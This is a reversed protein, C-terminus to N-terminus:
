SESSLHVVTRPRHIIETFKRLPELILSPALATLRLDTVLALSWLLSWFAPSFGFRSGTCSSDKMPRIVHDCLYGRCCGLNFHLFGFDWRFGETKETIFIVMKETLTQSKLGKIFLLHNVPDLGIM